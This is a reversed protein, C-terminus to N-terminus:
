ALSLRLVRRPRLPGLLALRQGVLPRLAVHPSPPPLRVPSTTHRWIAVDRAMLETAAHWDCSGTQATALAPTGMVPPWPLALPIGRVVGWGGGGDGSGRRQLPVLAAQLAPPNLSRRPRGGHARRALEARRAQWRRCVNCIGFCACLLLFSVLAFVLLPLGSVPQVHHHESSQGPSTSNDHVMRLEAVQHGQAAHQRGWCAHLPGALAYPGQERQWRTVRGRRRLLTQTRRHPRPM